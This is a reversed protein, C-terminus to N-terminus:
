NPWVERAIAVVEALKDWQEAESIENGEETSAFGCQPSVALQDIDVFRSAEEIRGIVADRAELAGSKTTTLGLVIVKDGRPVLRLPEFGGARETDYELLYGDYGFENFLKDAIPEYGGQAFWNSRFNGRCIHTAIFMDDPKGALVANSVEAWANLLYDPDDGRAKLKERWSEDCFYALNVDDFQLYRCGAKYFAAIADRYTVVLDAFLAELTPYVDRDVMGRWDRSSSILMAPAPISMKAAANTHQQTFRFEALMPHEPFALPGTVQQMRIQKIPAAGTGQPVIAPTTWVDTTGELGSFFEGTFSSRRLEGDTVVELGAAEQKAIASRIADDEIDALEDASMTKAAFAQRAEKVAEPRLLSGVHDARYPPRRKM